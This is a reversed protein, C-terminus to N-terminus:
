FDKLADVVEVIETCVLGAVDVERGRCPDSRLKEGLRRIQRGRGDVAEGTECGLM